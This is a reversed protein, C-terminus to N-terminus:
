HEAPTKDAAEGAAKASSESMVLVSKHVALSSAPIVLERGKVKVLVEEVRGRSDSVIQHVKGVPAGDPAIIPMGPAIAFASHGAAAASGAATLMSNGFVGSGQGSAAGNGGAMSSPNGVKETGGVTQERLSGIVPTAYNRTTGAAGRAHGATEGAVGRIADTGALQAHGNGAGSASGSGSASGHTSGLPGDLLQSSTAELSADVSRDASITGSRRDVKQSGRTRTEGRATERTTTRLTETSRHITSGMTGTIDGGVHGIGGSPLLQAYAPHASFFGLASAALFLKKM